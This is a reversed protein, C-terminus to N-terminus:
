TSPDELRGRAPRETCREFFDVEANRVIYPAGDLGLQVLQAWGFAAHELRGAHDADLDSGTHNSCREVTFDGDGLRVALHQRARRMEQLEGPLNHRGVTA